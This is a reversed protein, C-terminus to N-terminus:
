GFLNVFPPFTGLPGLAILAASAAAARMLPPNAHRWMLTLAAWVAFFVTAAAISLGSM